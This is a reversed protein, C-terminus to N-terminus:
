PENEIENELKNAAFQNFKNETGFKHQQSEIDM